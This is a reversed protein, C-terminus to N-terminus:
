ASRPPPGGEFAARLIEFADARAVPRPNPYSSAVALDAAKELDHPQLGLDRLSRQVGLRRNFAYLAGAAEEDAGFAQRVVQM